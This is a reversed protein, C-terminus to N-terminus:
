VLLLRNGTRLGNEQASFECKLECGDKTFLQLRNRDGHLACQEKRCILEAFEDKVEYLPTGETMEDFEYGPEAAMQFYEQLEKLKEEETLYLQINGSMSELGRFTKSLEGYVKEANKVQPCYMLYVVFRNKMKLSMFEKMSMDANTSEVTKSVPLAKIVLCGELGHLNEEIQQEVKRCVAASVYADEIYSGDCAAKAAFVVNPNRSPYCIVTYYGRVFEMGCYEQLIFEEGYKEELMLLVQQEYDKQIKMNELTIAEM